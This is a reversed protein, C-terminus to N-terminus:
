KFYNKKTKVTSLKSNTKNGSGEAGRKQLLILKSLRSLKLKREPSDTSSSCVLSWCAQPLDFLIQNQNNQINEHLFRIFLKKAYMLSCVSMKIGSIYSLFHLFKKMIGRKIIVKLISEVSSRNQVNWDFCFAIWGIDSFGRHAPSTFVTQLGDWCVFYFV